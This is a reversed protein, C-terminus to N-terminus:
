PEPTDGSLKALIRVIGPERAELLRSLDTLLDRDVRALQHPLFLGTLAPGNLAYFRHIQPMLSPLLLVLVKDEFRWTAPLDRLLPKLIPATFRAVEM